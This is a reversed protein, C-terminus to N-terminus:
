KQLFDGDSVDPLTKFAGRSVRNLYPNQLGGESTICIGLAIKETNIMQWTIRTM